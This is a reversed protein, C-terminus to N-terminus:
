SCKARQFCSKHLLERKNDQLFILFNKTLSTSCFGWFVASKNLSLM